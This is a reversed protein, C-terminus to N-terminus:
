AAVVRNRGQEKAQYLGKDAKEFLLEATVKEQTADYCAIGISVTVGVKGKETDIIQEAIAARLREGARLAGQLNTEPLIVAFEEGGFRAGLDTQRLCGCITRGVVRLVDDGIAHGYTDNFRKFFDVDVVALGLCHGHREARAIDRAFAEDFARRNPLGTLADTTAIQALTANALQLEEALAEKEQVVRNLTEILEQYQRAMLALQNRADNILEDLDPQPGIDRNFAAAAVSVEGPLETLIKESVAESLGLEAAGELALRKAEDVHGGEFPAAFREALWCVAAVPGQPRTDSHHEAIAEVIAKPFNHKSAMNAGIAPHPKRKLMRERLVRESAPARGVEAAGTLGGAGNTMLGADLLLGATFYDDGTRDGLAVGISRAAIARRICNGVLVDGDDGDPAMDSIMLGLAISRTGRIGLMGIARTLDSVETAGRYAASNVTALLRVAFAPDAGALQSLEGLSVDEKVAAQLIRAAGLSAMELEASGSTSALVVDDSFPLFRRISSLLSSGPAYKASVRM